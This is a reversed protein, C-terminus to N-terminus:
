HVDKWGDDISVALQEGNSFKKGITIGGERTILRAHWTLVIDFLVSTWSGTLLSKRQSIEIQEKGKKM